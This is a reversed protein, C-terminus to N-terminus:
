LTWIPSYVFQYFTSEQLMGESSALTNMLLMLDEELYQVNQIELFNKINWVNVSLARKQSPAYLERNQSVRASGLLRNNEYFNPNSKQGGLAKTNFRVSRTGQTKPSYPGNYNNNSFSPIPSNPIRVASNTNNSRSNSQVSFTIQTPMHSSENKPQIHDPSYSSLYEFMQEATYPRLATMIRTMDKLQKQFLMLIQRMLYYESEPIQVEGNQGNREWNCFLYIEPIQIKHSTFLQRFSEYKLTILEPSQPTDLTGEISGFMRSQVTNGRRRVQNQVNPNMSSAMQNARQEFLNRSHVESQHMYPSEIYVDTQSPPLSGTNIGRQHMLEQDIGQPEFKSLYIMMKVLMKHKLPFNLAQLLNKLGNLSLEGSNPDCFRRYLAYCSTEGNMKDIKLKITEIKSGYVLMKKFLIRLKAEMDDVSMTGIKSQAAPESQENQSDIESRQAFRNKRQSPKPKRQKRKEITWNIRRNSHRNGISLEPSQPETSSIRQENDDRQPKKRRLFRFKSEKQTLSRSYVTPTDFPRSANAKITQLEPDKKNSKRTFRKKGFSKNHPSKSIQEVQTDISSRITGAHTPVRSFQSLMNGGEVVKETERQPATGYAPKPLTSGVAIESRIESRKKLNERWPKENGFGM